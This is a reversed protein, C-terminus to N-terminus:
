LGRPANGPVPSAHGLGRVPLLRLRFSCSQSHIRLLSRLSLAELGVFEDNVRSVTDALDHGDLLLLDGARPKLQEDDVEDLVLHRQPHRRRLHRRDAHALKGLRRHDLPRELRELAARADLPGHPRAPRLFVLGLDIGAVDDGDGLDHAVQEPRIGLRFLGIRLAM